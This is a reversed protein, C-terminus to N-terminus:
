IQSKIAQMVPHFTQSSQALNERWAELCAGYNTGDCILSRCTTGMSPYGKVDLAPATYEFKIKSCVIYYLMFSM